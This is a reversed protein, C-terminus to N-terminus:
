NFTKTQHQKLVFNSVTIM